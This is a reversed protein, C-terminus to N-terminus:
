RTHEEKLRKRVQETVEEYLDDSKRPEDLKWIRLFLGYAAATMLVFVIFTGTASSAETQIDNTLMFWLGGLGRQALLLPIITLGINIATRM